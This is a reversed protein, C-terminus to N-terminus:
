PEAPSGSDIIRYIQDGVGTYVNLPTVVLVKQQEHPAAASYGRM